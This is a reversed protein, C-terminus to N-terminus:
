LGAAVKAVLPNGYFRVLLSGAAAFVFALILGAGSNLWFLNSATYHDIEEFQIVAETFGNLGFSVVFLSFTTAMTVVGFDSPALLRALIVTSVLQAALSLGSGTVSAAAGRVALRRFEAGGARPHFAGTADFPIMKVKLRLVSDIVTATKMENTSLPSRGM